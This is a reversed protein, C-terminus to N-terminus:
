KNKVVVFNFMLILSCLILLIILFMKQFDMLSQLESSKFENNCWETTLSFNLLHYAFSLYNGTSSKRSHNSGESIFKNNSTLKM